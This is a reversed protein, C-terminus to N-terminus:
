VTQLAQKLIHLQASIIRIIEDCPEGSALQQDLARLRMGQYELCSGTNGQTFAAIVSENWQLDVGFWLPQQAHTWLDYRLAFYLLERGSAEKFYLALEGQRSQREITWDKGLAQEVSNIIEFLRSITKPTEETFM